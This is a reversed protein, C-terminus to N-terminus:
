RDEAKVPSARSAFFGLMEFALFFAISDAAFLTSIFKHQSLEPM